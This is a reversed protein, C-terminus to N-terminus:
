NNADQRCDKQEDAVAVHQPLLALRLIRTGAQIVASEQEAHKHVVDGVHQPTDQIFMAQCVELEYIRGDIKDGHNRRDHQPRAVHHRIEVALIKEFLPEQARSLRDETYEKDKDDDIEEIRHKKPEIVLANVVGCEHPM